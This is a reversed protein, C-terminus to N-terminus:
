LCQIMEGGKKFSKCGMNRLLRNYSEKCFTLIFIGISNFFDNKLKTLSQM